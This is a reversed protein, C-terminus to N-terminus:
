GKGKQVIKKAATISVKGRRWTGIRILISGNVAFMIMTPTDM